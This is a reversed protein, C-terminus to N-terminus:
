HSVVLSCLRIKLPQIGLCWKSAFHVTKLLFKLLVRGSELVQNQSTTYWSMMKFCFPYNKLSFKLLVRGAELVQNQSTTYWSVMKISFPYNKLLFKLLVRGPELVQNQFTFSPQHPKYTSSIM